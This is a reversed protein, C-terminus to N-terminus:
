KKIISFLGSGCQTYMLVTIIRVSKSFYTRRHSIFSNLEPRIWLNFHKLFFFCSSKKIAYYLLRVLLMVVTVM